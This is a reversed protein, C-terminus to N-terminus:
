NRNLGISATEGKHALTYQNAKSLAVCASYILDTRRIDSVAKHRASKKIHNTSLLLTM